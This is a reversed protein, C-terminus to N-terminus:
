GLALCPHCDDTVKTETLVALGVGMQALGKAASSLGANRECRINWAALAFAGSGGLSPPVSSILVTM